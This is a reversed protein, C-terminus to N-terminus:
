IKNTIRKRNQKKMVLFSFVIQVGNDLLLWRSLKGFYRNRKELLLRKYNELLTCKNRSCVHIKWSPGDTRRVSM